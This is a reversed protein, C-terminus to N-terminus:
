SKATVAPGVATVTLAPVDPVDVMVTVARGANCPKVPVTVIAAAADGELPRVQLRVGELTVRPVETEEVSEQLPLM